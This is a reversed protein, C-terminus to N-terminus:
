LNPWEALAMIASKEANKNKGYTTIIYKTKNSNLEVKKFFFIM